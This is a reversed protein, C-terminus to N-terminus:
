APGQTEVRFEFLTPNGPLDSGRWFYTPSATCGALSQSMIAFGYSPTSAEGSCGTGSISPANAAATMDFTFNDWVVSFNSFGSVPDYTFSGSTPLPSGGSFNITYITAASAAQIFLAAAAILVLILNKM